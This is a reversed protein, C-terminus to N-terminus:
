KKELLVAELRDLRARLNANEDALRDNEAQMARTREELAKVAALAVGDADLSGIYRADEGLGFAAHFDQATPGIHRIGDEQALYSWEMVPLVAIRRLVDEGNLDTFRHKSHVDSLQLWQSSGGVMQVGATEAGNTAFRVGGSARVKFQGPIDALIRTSTTVDGFAFSGAANAAVEANGIAVSSTARAIANAGAALSYAGTAQTGTGMATSGFGSAITNYGFAQSYPGTAQVNQGAAFSSYSTARSFHGLALSDEGSAFSNYGFTTSRLGVAQSEEGFAASMSGSALTNLGFAVSYVGVNVDDWTPITLHGARFAAKRPHWMMRTGLGSAPIVGSDLTGGAVFGGDTELRFVPPVVTTSPLPRPSGGTGPGPTFVFAGSEGGGLWTGGLTAMSVVASLPMATGGPAVVNLGLGISGDANVSATGIVSSRPSAGCRDDAGELRYVGGVQTVTVTVINCFPQLQWRFTGVQQAAADAASLGLCAGLLGIAVIRHM